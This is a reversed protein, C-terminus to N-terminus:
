RFLTALPHNLDWDRRSVLATLFLTRLSARFLAVLSRYASRATIALVRLLAILEILLVVAQLENTHHSCFSCCAHFQELLQLECVNPPLFILHSSISAITCRDFLEGRVVM